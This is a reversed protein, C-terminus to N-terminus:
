NNDNLFCFDGTKFNKVIGMLRWRLWIYFCAILLFNLCGQMFFVFTRMNVFHKGVEIVYNHGGFSFNASYESTARAMWNSPIRTTFMNTMSLASQTVVTVESLLGSVSNGFQVASNSFIDMEETLLAPM